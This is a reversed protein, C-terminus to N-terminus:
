SHEYAVTSHRLNSIGYSLVWLIEYAGCVEIRKYGEEGVSNVDCTHM